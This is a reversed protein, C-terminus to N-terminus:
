VEGDRQVKQDFYYLFFNKEILKKISLINKNSYINYWIKKM